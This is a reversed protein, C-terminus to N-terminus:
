EVLHLARNTDEHYVKIGVVFSPKLRQAAALAAKYTVWCSESDDFCDCYRLDVRNLRVVVTWHDNHEEVVIYPKVPKATKPKAM